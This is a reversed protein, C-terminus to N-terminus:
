KQNWYTVYRNTRVARPDQYGDKAKVYKDASDGEALKVVAEDTTAAAQTQRQQEPLISPAYAPPPPVFYSHSTKHTKSVQKAKALAAGDFAPLTVLALAASFCLGKVASPRYRKILLM